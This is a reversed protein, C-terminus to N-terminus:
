TSNIGAMLYYLVRVVKRGRIKYADAAHVSGSDTCDGAPTLPGSADCAATMMYSNSTMHTFSCILSRTAFEQLLQGYETRGADDRRGKQGGAAAALFTTLLRRGCLRGAFKGAIVCGPERLLLYLHSLVGLVHVLGRIRILVACVALQVLLRLCAFLAASALNELTGNMRFSITRQPDCLLSSTATVRRERAEAVALNDSYM